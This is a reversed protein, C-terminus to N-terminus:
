SGSPWAKRIALGIEKFKGKPCVGDAGALVLKRNGEDHASVAVIKVDLSQDRIWRVLENGKDDDLDYDVLVVDFDTEALLDHAKSTTSAITVDHGVLSFGHDRNQRLHRPERCFPGENGASCHSPIKIGSEHLIQHIVHGQHTPQSRQESGAALARLWSYGVRDIIQFLVAIALIVTCPRWPLLTKSKHYCSKDFSQHNWHRRM